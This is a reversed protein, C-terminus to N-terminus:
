CRRGPARTVCHFRIALVEDGVVFEAVNAGVATIVGAAEVGLAMPPRIGVDWGGSRVVEDRNGVGAAKVAILVEDVALPRPDPVELLEVAGSLECIGAAQMYDERLAFTHRDPNPKM